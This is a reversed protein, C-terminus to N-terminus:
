LFALIKFCNRASPCRPKLISNRSLPFQFYISGKWFDPLASPLGHVLLHFVVTRPASWVCLCFGTQADEELEVSYIERSSTRHASLLWLYGVCGCGGVQFCLLAEFTNQRGATCVMRTDSLIWWGLCRGKAFLHTKNLSWPWATRLLRERGWSCIWSSSKSQLVVMVWSHKWIM